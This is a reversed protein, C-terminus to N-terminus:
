RKRLLPHHIVWWPTSAALRRSLTTPKTGNRVDFALFAAVAEASAPLPSLRKAECWSRFIEFDSRHARRTAASRSARAYEVAEGLEPGLTPAIGNGGLIILSYSSQSLSDIQCWWHGRRARAERNLTIGFYPLTLLPLVLFSAHDRDDLSPAPDLSWAVAPCGGPKLRDTPPPFYFTASPLM